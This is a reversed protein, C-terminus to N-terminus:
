VAIRRADKGGVAGSEPAGKGGAPGMPRNGANLPVISRESSRSGMGGREPQGRAVTGSPTRQNAGSPARVSGWRAQLPDRRGRRRQLVLPSLLVEWTGPSGKQACARTQPGPPAKAGPGRLADTSGETLSIVDAEVPSDDIPARYVAQTSGTYAERRRNGSAACCETGASPWDKGPPTPGSPEIPPKLPTKEVDREGGGLKKACRM